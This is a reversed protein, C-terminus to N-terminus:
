LCLEVGLALLRFDLVGECIGGSDGIEGIGGVGLFPRGRVGVGVWVWVGGGVGLAVPRLQVLLPWGVRGWGM